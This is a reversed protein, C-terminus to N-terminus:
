GAGTWSAGLRQEENLQQSAVDVLMDLSGVSDTRRRGAATRAVMGHRPRPPTEFTLATSMLSPGGGYMDRDLGMHSDGTGIAREPSGLDFNSDFADHQLDSDRFGYQAADSMMDGLGVDPGTQLAFAPLNTRAAGGGVNILGGGNGVADTSGSGAMSYAFGTQAPSAAASSHSMHGAGHPQHESGAPLARHRGGQAAAALSDTGVGGAGYTSHGVRKQRKLGHGDGMDSDFTRPRPPQREPSLAATALLDLQQADRQAPGTSHYSPNLATGPTTVATPPAFSAHQTAPPAAVAASSASSPGSASATYDTSSSVQTGGGAQSATSTELESAGGGEVDSALQSVLYVEVPGSDSTWFAEYHLEGSASTWPESCAVPLPPDTM